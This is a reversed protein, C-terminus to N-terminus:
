HIRHEKNEAVQISLLAETQLECEAIHYGEPSQEIADGTVKAHELHKFAISYGDSTTLIFVKM